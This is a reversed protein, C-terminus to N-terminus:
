TYWLLRWVLFSRSYFLFKWFFTNEIEGASNWNTTFKNTVHSMHWCVSPFWKWCECFGLIVQFEYFYFSHVREWLLNLYHCARGAMLYFWRHLSLSWPDLYVLSGATYCVMDVERFTFKLVSRYLLIVVFYPGKLQGRCYSFFLINWLLRIVWDCLM